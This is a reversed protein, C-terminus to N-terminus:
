RRYLTTCLPPFSAGQQPCIELICFAEEFSIGAGEAEGKVFDIVDPDFKEALGFIKNVNNSIEEQGANQGHSLGLFNM